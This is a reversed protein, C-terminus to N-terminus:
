FLNINSVILQHFSELDEKLHTLIFRNRIDLKEPVDTKGVIFEILEMKEKKVTEESPIFKSETKSQEFMANTLDCTVKIIDKLSPSNNGRRTCGRKRRNKKCAFFKQSNVLKSFKKTMKNLLNFNVLNCCRIMPHTHENESECKGCLDFDYCILCKFRKGKIPYMSCGDCTVGHHNTNVTIKPSTTNTEVSETKEKIQSELLSMKEEFEQKTKLLSENLKEIESKNECQSHQLKEQVAKVIMKQKKQKKLFKKLEKDQKREIRAQRKKEKIEKRKELINKKKLANEIIRKEKRERLKKQIIEAEQKAKEDNKQNIKKLADFSALIARQNDLESESMKDLNQQDESKNETEPQSEPEEKVEIKEPEEIKEEEEVKEPEQVKEVSENRPEINEVPKKIVISSKLNLEYDNSQEKKEEVEPAKENEKTIESIEIFEEEEVESAKM